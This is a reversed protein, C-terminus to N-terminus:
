LALTTCVFIPTVVKNNLVLDVNGVDWLPLFAGDTQTPEGSIPRDLGFRDVMTQSILPLHESGSDVLVRAKSWEPGHAVATCVMAAFM